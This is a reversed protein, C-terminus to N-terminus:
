RIRPFPMPNASRGMRRAVFLAALFALVLGALLLAGSRELAQYLPAYAEDVPLEAFVLWGLPAVPAYATLVDRGLLDKGIQVPETPVDRRRRLDVVQAFHPDAKMGAAARAAKVQTLGTMDTNRLVLSIDPHAILRGQDDVKIQSIVDWILKLGVEAVSVGADRRIGALALTMYVDSQRRFYVPGYYVKKAVAETFKAEHSYDILSGIVDLALKSQRLQEKGTADLQALETIAPVQRVVRSGDFKHQEINASSWPLQTTWGVQSEIEKIFQGIKAAAAEAQEHQIRILSIKHQQHAFGIELLGNILLVICVVALFVPVARQARALLPWAVASGLGAVFERRKM